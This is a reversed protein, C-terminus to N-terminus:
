RSGCAKLTTPNFGSLWIQSVSLKPDVEIHKDAQWSM